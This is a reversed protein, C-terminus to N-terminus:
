YRQDALHHLLVSIIVYVITIFSPPHQFLGFYLAGLFETDLARYQLAVDEVFLRESSLHVAADHKQCNFSRQVVTTATRQLM